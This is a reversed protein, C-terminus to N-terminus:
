NSQKYYKRTIGSKRLVGELYFLIKNLQKNKGCIYYLKSLIYLVYLKNKLFMSNREKSNEKDGILASTRMTDIYYKIDILDLISKDSIGFHKYFFMKIERRKKEIIHKRQPNKTNSLSEKQLRYVSTIEDLFYIKKRFSFWIWMPYDEGSFNISIPNIEQVYELFAKKSFCTTLSAICNVIIIKEFQTNDRGIINKSFRSFEEIYVKSKTHILDYEPNKKLFNIQKQLKLKDCWWDDGACCAIYKGRAYMCISEYYNRLFGKNSDNVVLLIKEPNNNFYELCKTKTNDSSCDDVIIIEFPFNTEQDLISNISQGVIKEQNYTFIFVSVLPNEFLCNSKYIM